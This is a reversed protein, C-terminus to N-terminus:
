VGLEDIFSCLSFLVGGIGVISFGSKREKKKRIGNIRRRKRQVGFYSVEAGDSDIGLCVKADEGDVGLRVKM